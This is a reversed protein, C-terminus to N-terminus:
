TIHCYSYTRKHIMSLARLPFKGHGMDDYRTELIIIIVFFLFLVIANIDVVSLM